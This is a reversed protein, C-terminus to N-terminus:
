FNCVCQSENESHFDIEPTYPLSAANILDDISLNERFATNHYQNEMKQWWSASNVGYRINKILNNYSKKWCMECNGLAGHISLRFPQNSWWKNLHTNNIPIDFDTLLPFIRTKDEKIQAYTIRKPMDEARYGIAKIYNNVGFISDCFKKCPITKLSESCYPADKNPLGNFVGKNKHAIAAEFPESSMSLDSFPVVKFSPGVGMELSFVGEILNLPLGWYKVMDRLFNITEIREQGTNAFVFIKNFAKYKPSLQIHRAMMASSRGGSVTVMMNLNDDVLGSFTM